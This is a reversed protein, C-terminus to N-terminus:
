EAGGSSSGSSTCSASQQPLLIIGADATHSAYTVVLVVWLCVVFAFLGILGKSKKM